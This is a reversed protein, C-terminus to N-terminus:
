NQYEEPEYYQVSSLSFSYGQYNERVVRLLYELCNESQDNVPVMLLATVLAVTVIIYEVM